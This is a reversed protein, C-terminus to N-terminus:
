SLPLSTIECGGREVRILREKRLPSNAQWRKRAPPRLRSRAPPLGPLISDTEPCFMVLSVSSRSRQVLREPKEMNANGFHDDRTRWQSDREAAAPSIQRGVIALVASEQYSGCDILVNVDSNM